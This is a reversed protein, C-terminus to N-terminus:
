DASRVTIHAAGGETPKTIVGRDDYGVATIEYAGAPVNAAWNLLFRPPDVSEGIRHWECYYVVRRTEPSAEVELSCGSGQVLNTGDAPSTLRVTPREDPEYPGTHPGCLFGYTFAAHNQNQHITFEGDMISHRNLFRAEGLPFHSNWDHLAPYASSRSVETAGIWNGKADGGEKPATGGYTVLGPIIPNRYVKSNYDYLTWSDIHFPADDFNDGLGCILVM